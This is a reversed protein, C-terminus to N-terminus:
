FSCPRDRICMQYSIGSIINALTSKGSGNMGVLGVCDGEQAKFTIGKLAYFNQANSRGLILDKMKEKGNAYMKYMKTVKDAVVADKTSM